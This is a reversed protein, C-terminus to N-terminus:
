VHINIAYKIYASSVPRVIQAENIMRTVAKTTGPSGAAYWVLLPDGMVVYDGHMFHAPTMHQRLGRMASRPKFTGHFTDLSLTYLWALQISYTFHKAKAVRLM